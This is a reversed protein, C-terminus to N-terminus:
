QDANSLLWEKVAVQFQNKSDVVKISGPLSNWAVAGTYEFTSKGVITRFRFINVNCDSYDSDMYM